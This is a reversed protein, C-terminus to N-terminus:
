EGQSSRSLSIQPHTCIICNRSHLKRWVGTVDDRKPGFVRRLIRNEFVRLRYEERPTLSWTECGYLVVPLIITKYIKVKINKSLLSSSLLSHVSHYCANGSNLRSKFEEHICNQDILTTGLYKFKAVDEFSRNAIKISHRKGEEQCRSVLMYRTKKPNVEMGVEKSADLLAKTNKRITDINEGVRNVDDAYTLVQHTAYQFPVICYM